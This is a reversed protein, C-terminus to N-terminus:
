RSDKVSLYYVWRLDLTLLHDNGVLAEAIVAGGVEGIDCSAARVHQLHASRSIM